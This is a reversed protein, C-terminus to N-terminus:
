NARWWSNGGSGTLLPKLLKRVKNSGAGPTRISSISIDGLKIDKVTTSSSLSDKNTLLHLSLEYAAQVVRDPVTSDFYKYDGLKSDFYQGIRPFAMAQTLDLATGIWPMDDLIRSATMLAREKEPDAASEWVESGLRSLFYANAESVTAYSNTGKTLAM